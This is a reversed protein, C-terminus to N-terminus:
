FAGPDIAIYSFTYTTGDTLATGVNITFISETSQYYVANNSIACIEWFISSSFIHSQLPSIEHKILNFLPDLLTISLFAAVSISVIIDSNVTSEGLNRGDNFKPYKLRLFSKSTYFFVLPFTSYLDIEEKWFGEVDWSWM